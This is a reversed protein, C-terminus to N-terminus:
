SIWYKTRCTLFVFVNQNLQDRILAHNFHDESLQQSAKQYLEVAAETDGIKEYSDGIIVLIEPDYYRTNQVGRQLYELADQYNGIKFQTSGLGFLAMSHDPDGQLVSQYEQIVSGYEGKERLVNAYAVKANNNDEPKIGLSKRCNLEASEL